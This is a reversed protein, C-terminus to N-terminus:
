NEVKKMLKKIGNTIVNEYKTYNSPLLKNQFKGMEPHGAYWHIGIIGDTENHNINDFIMEHIQYYKLIYIFDSHLFNSSSLRNINSKIVGRIYDPGLSQYKSLDLNGLVGNTAKIMFDNEKSSFIM